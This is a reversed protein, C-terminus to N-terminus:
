RNTKVTATTSAPVIDVGLVIESGVKVVERKAPVAPHDFDVTTGDDGSHRWHHELREGSLNVIESEELQAGCQECFPVDDDVILALARFESLKVKETTKVVTEYTDDDLHAKAWELVIQEDSIAVTPGSGRRTSIEGSPLRITAERPNEERWALGYRELHGRFWDVRPRLRKMQDAEWEDIPERWTAAQQRIAMAQKEFAALKGMAWEAAGTTTIQWARAREPIADVGLHELADDLEAEWEPADNLRAPNQPEDVFAM